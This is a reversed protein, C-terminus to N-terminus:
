EAATVSHTILGSHHHPTSLKAKKAVTILNATHPSSMACRKVGVVIIPCEDEEEDMIIIFTFKSQVLLSVTRDLKLEEGKFCM